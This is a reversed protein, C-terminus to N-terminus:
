AKRKKLWPQMRLLETEVNGLETITDKLLYRVSDAQSRTLGENELREELELIKARLTDAVSLKAGWDAGWTSM